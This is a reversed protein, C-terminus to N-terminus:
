IAAGIGCGEGKSILVGEVETGSCDIGYFFCADSRELSLRDGMLHGRERMSIGQIKRRECSQPFNRQSSQVRWDEM